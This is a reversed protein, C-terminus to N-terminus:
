GGSAPPVATDSGVVGTSRVTRWTTLSSATPPTRTPAGDCAGLVERMPTTSRQQGTELLSTTAPGVVAESTITCAPRSLHVTRGTPCGLSAEGAPAQEILGFGIGARGARDKVTGLDKVGPVGALVQFLAARFAPTSGIDPGELLAAARAFMTCASTTPGHPCEQGDLGGGAGTALVHRLATPDTPWSTVDYLPPAGDYLLPPSTTSGGDIVGDRGFRWTGTIGSPPSLSVLTPKGAAIWAARDAPTTFLPTPDVSEVLRGSGNTALWSRITVLLRYRVTLNSPSGTTGQPRLAAAVSVGPVETESYAYQGPGLTTPAQAAASALRALVAAAASPPPAGPTLAVMLATVLAAVGLASASIGLVRRRATGRRPEAGPPRVRQRIDRGVESEATPVTSSGAPDLRRYLTEIDSM